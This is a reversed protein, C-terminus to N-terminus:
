ASGTMPRNSMFWRVEGTFSGIDVDLNARYHISGNREEKSTILLEVLVEDLEVIRKRCDLSLNRLYIERDKRPVGIDRFSYITGLQSVWILAMPASLYSGGDAHRFIKNAQVTGIAIGGGIMVNTFKFDDDKYGGTLYPSCLPGYDDELVREPIEPLRRDTM